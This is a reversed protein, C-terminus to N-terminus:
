GDLPQFVLVLWQYQFQIVPIERFAAVGSEELLTASFGAVWETASVCSGVVSVSM